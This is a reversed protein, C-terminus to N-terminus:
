KIFKCTKLEGNSLEVHVLYVGKNLASIDISIENKSGLITEIGTGSISLIKAEKIEFSWRAYQHQFEVLAIDVGDLSTGSM